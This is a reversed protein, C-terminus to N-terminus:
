GFLDEPWPSPLLSAANGIRFLDAVGDLLEKYSQYDPCIEEVIPLAKLPANNKVSWNLHFAHHHSGFVDGVLALPTNPHDNSHPTLPKWDIRGLRVTDRRNDTPRYLLSFSVYANRIGLRARGVLELGQFVRSGIRLAAVIRVQDDKSDKHQDVWIPAGAILKDSDVLTKYPISM